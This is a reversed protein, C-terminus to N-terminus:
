GVRIEGSMGAHVTCRYEFTGRAPFEHRFEGEKQLESSFGEGAVNHAQRANKWEWVVETGPEVCLAEPRFENDVVDVHDGAQEPCDAASSSSGSGCGALTSVAAVLLASRLTRRM